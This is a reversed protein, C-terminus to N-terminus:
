HRINRGKNNDLFVKEAEEFSVGHKKQNIRNKKEDWEFDLRYGM